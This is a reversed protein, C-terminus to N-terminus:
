NSEGLVNIIQPFQDTSAQVSLSARTLLRSTPRYSFRLTYTGGPAITVPGSPAGVLGFHAENVPSVISLTIPAGGINRVTETGFATTGVSPAIIVLKQFQLEASSPQNLQGILTVNASSRTM